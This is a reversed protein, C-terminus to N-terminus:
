LNNNIVLISQVFIKSSIFNSNFTIIIIGILKGIICLSLSLRNQRCKIIIGYIIKFNIKIKIIKRHNIYIYINITYIIYKNKYIRNLITGTAYEPNRLPNINGM